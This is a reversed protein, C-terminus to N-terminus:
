YSEFTGIKRKIPGLSTVSLVVTDGGRRSVLSTSMDSPVKTDFVGIQSCKFFVHVTFSFKVSILKHPRTSPRSQYVRTLSWGPTLRTRLAASHTLEVVFRHHEFINGSYGKGPTGLVLHLTSILVRGEHKDSLDRGLVILRSLRSCLSLIRQKHVYM